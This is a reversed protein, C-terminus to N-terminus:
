RRGLAPATPTTLPLHLPTQRLPSLWLGLVVPAGAAATAVASHIHLFHFLSRKDLVWFPTERYRYSAFCSIIKSHTHSCGNHSMTHEYPWTKCCMQISTKLRIRCGVWGTKFIRKTDKDKKTNVEDVELFVEKTVAGEGSSCMGLM